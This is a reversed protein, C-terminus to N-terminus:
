FAVDLVAGAIRFPLAIVEGVVHGTCTIVGHCGPRERHVKTTKKSCDRELTDGAENRVEVCEVTETRTVAHRGHACAGLLTILILLAIGAAPRALSRNM